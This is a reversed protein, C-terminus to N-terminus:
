ASKYGFGGSDVRIWSINNFNLIFKSLRLSCRTGEGGHHCNACSGVLFGDVVVCQDWPGKEKECHGCPAASLRGVSQALYAERNSQRYLLLKRKNDRLLPRRIAPRQSFAGFAASVKESPPLDQCPNWAPPTAATTPPADATPPNAWTVAKRTTTATAITPPAAPAAAPAASAITFSAPFARLLLPPPTPSRKRKRSPVM